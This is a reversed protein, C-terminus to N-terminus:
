EKFGSLYENPDQTRLNLIESSNKSGEWDGIIYGNIFTTLSMLYTVIKMFLEIM